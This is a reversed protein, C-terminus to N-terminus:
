ILHKKSRSALFCAAFHTFLLLALLFVYSGVIFFIENTRYTDGVRIFFDVTGIVEFVLYGLFRIATAGFIAVTAPNDLELAGLPFYAKDPVAGDLKMILRIIGYYLLVELTTVFALAISTIISLGIAEASDFVDAVYMVYYYPIFYILRTAVLLAAPLISGKFGRNMKVLIAAFIIPLTFEALRGVFYQIYAAADSTFFILNALHFALYDIISIGLLIPLIPLKRKTKTM